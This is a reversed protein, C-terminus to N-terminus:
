GWLIHIVGPGVWGLVVACIGFAMGLSVISKDYGVMPRRRAVIALVIAVGGLVSGLWTTSFLAVPSLTGLLFTWASLASYTRSTSVTSM